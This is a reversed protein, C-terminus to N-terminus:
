FLDRFAELSINAIEVKKLDKKKEIEKIDKVKKVSQQIVKASQKNQNKM